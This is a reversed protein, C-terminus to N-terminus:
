RLDSIIGSAVREALAAITYSPNRGIAQPIISGDAIYLGPHGFVRGFSDVVGKDPGDAMVAGGLPHYTLPMDFLSLVNPKHERDMAKALEAMAQHQAKIVPENNIGGPWNLSLMNLANLSMKGISRDVGVGVFVLLDKEHKAIEKPTVRCGALAKLFAIGREPTSTGVMGASWTPGAHDEIVFDKYKIMSVIAPGDNIEIQERPTGKRLAGDLANGNASFRSGLTASLNPLHKKKKSTLLLKLSGMTGAAVVVIDADLFNKEVLRGDNDFHKYHVRYKGNDLHEVTTVSHMPRVEAGLAEAYAIYTMDASNKANQPCGAPCIGCFNCGKQFTKGFGSPTIKDPDQFNIALQCPEYPLGLSSAAQQFHSARRVTRGFADPNGPIGPSVSPRMFQLPLQYFPELKNWSIGTPWLGSDFIERPPTAVVNDWILSGGGVGSAMITQLGPMQHIQYLGLRQRFPNWFQPGWFFDKDGLKPFPQSGQPAFDAPMNEGRWRKGREFAIVQIGAMSLRLAAVGGAWGTGLVAAIKSM